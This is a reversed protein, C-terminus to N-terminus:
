VFNNMMQGQARQGGQNNNQNYNHNRNQQM